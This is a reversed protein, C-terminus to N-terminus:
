LTLLFAGWVIALVLAPRAWVPVYRDLISPPAPPADWLPNRIPAPRPATAPRAGARKDTYQGAWLPRPAPAPEPAPTASARRDTYHWGPSGLWRSYYPKM